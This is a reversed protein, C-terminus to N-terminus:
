GDKQAQQLIASVAGMGSGFMLGPTPADELADVAAALMDANPHAERAYTYGQNGGLYISDIEDADASAWVASPHLPTAVPRAVGQPMPPRRAPDAPRANRREETM